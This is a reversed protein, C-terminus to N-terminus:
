KKYGSHIFEPLNLVQFEVSVYKHGILLPYDPKRAKMIGIREIMQENM